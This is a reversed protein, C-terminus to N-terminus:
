FVTAIMLWFAPRPLRRQGDVERGGGGCGPMVGRDDVEVRLARRRAPAVTSLGVRGLDDTTLSCAERAEDLRRLGVAGNCLKFLRGGDGLQRRRPLPLPLRGAFALAPFGKGSVFGSATASAFRSARFRGLLTRGPVFRTM